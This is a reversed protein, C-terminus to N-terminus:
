FDLILISAPKSEGSAERQSASLMKESHGWTAKEQQMPM